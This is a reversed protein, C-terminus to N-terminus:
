AAGESRGFLAAFGDRFHSAAVSVRERFDALGDRRDDLWMGFKDTRLKYEREFDAATVRELGRGDRKIVWDGDELYDYGFDTTIATQVTFTPGGAHHLLPTRHQRASVKEGGSNLYRSYEECGRM